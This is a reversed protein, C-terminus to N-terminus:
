YLVSKSTLFWVALIVPNIPCTPFFYRISGKDSILMSFDILLGNWLERVQKRKVQQNLLLARDAERFHALREIRELEDMQQTELAKQFFASLESVIM